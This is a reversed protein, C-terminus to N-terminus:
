FNLNEVEEVRIITKIDLTGKVSILKELYQTRIIKKMYIIGCVKFHVKLVKIKKLKQFCFFKFNVDLWM